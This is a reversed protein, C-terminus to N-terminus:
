SMVKKGIKKMERESHFSKTSAKIIIKKKIMPYLILDSLLVHIMHIMSLFHTTGLFTFLNQNRNSVYIFQFNQAEM